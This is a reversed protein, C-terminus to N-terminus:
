SRNLPWALQDVPLGHSGLQHMVFLNGTQITTLGYESRFYPAAFTVLNADLGDFFTIIWSIVALGILFGRREIIESVDVTSPKPM